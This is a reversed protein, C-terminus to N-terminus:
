EQIEGTRDGISVTTTLLQPVRSTVVFTSRRTAGSADEWTRTNLRGDIGVRYGLAISSHCTIAADDYVVVRIRDAIGSGDPRDVAVRFVCRARDPLDPDSGLRPRTCVNGILTVCNM